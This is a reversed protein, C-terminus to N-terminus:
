YPIFSFYFLMDYVTNYQYVTNCASVIGCAARLSFSVMDINMEQFATTLQNLLPQLFCELDGPMACALMAETLSTYFLTAYRGKPSSQIAAFCFTTHKVVLRKMSDMAITIKQIHPNHCITSFLSLAQQLIMEPLNAQSLTNLIFQLISDIVSIANGSAIKSFFDSYAVLKYSGMEQILDPTGTAVTKLKYNDLRNDLLLIYEICLVFPNCSPLYLIICTLSSLSFPSRCHTHIAFFVSPQESLLTIISFLLSCFTADILYLKQKVQYDTFMQRKLTM